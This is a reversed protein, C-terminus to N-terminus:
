VALCLARGSAVALHSVFYNVLIFGNLDCHSDLMSLLGGICSLLVALLRALFLLSM